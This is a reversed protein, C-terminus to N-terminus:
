WTQPFLDWLPHGANEYHRFIHYGQRAQRCTVRNALKAPHKRFATAHKINRM